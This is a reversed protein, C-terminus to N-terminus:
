GGFRLGRKSVLERLRSARLYHSALVRGRATVAVGEIKLLKRKMDLGGRYGGINFDSRVVRHCPVIIPWPNRAVANGVARSARPNNIVEAISGYCAVFGRPIVYVVSLVRRMFSTLGDTNLDFELKVDEGRLYLGVGEVVERGVRRIFPTMESRFGYNVPVLALSKAEDVAEKESRRPLSLSVVREKEDVVVALWLEGIRGTYVFGNVAAM